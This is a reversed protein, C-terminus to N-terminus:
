PKAGIRRLFAYVIITTIASVIMTVGISFSDEDLKNGLTIMWRVYIFKKMFKEFDFAAKKLIFVKSRPYGTFVPPSPLDDVSLFGNEEWMRVLEVPIEQIKLHQPDESDFVHFNPGHLESIFKVDRKMKIQYDVLRFLPKNPGETSGQFLPMNGRGLSGGVLFNIVV